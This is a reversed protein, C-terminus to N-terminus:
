RFINELELGTKKNIAIILDHLFRFPPKELLKKTCKPKSTIRSIIERTSIPDGNCQQIKEHLSNVIDVKSEEEVLSSGDSLGKAEMILHPSKTTFPKSAEDSIDKSELPLDQRTESHERRKLRDEEEEEQLFDQKKEEEESGTQLDVMNRSSFDEIKGGFQCHKIAATHDVSPNVAVNGFLTLLVNTHIPELGAVIKSPRVHVESGTCVGVLYILKNLFAVKSTKDKLNKSELEHATFYNKPFGTSTMTATIIDHIFSNTRLILVNMNHVSILENKSLAITVFPQLSPAVSIHNIVVCAISISQM